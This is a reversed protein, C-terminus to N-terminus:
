AARLATYFAWSELTMGRRTAALECVRAAQLHELRALDSLTDGANLRFVLRQPLVVEPLEDGSDAVAAGGGLQLSWRRLEPSPSLRPEDLERRAVDALASGDCGGGALDRAVLAWEVLIALVVDVPLRADHAAERWAAFHHACHSADM